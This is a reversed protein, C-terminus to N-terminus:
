DRAPKLFIPTGDPDRLSCFMVGPHPEIIPAVEVGKAILADRYAVLDDVYFSLAAQSPHTQPEGDAHLALHSGGLDFEVWFEHALEASNLGTVLSLGLTEAYFKASVGMNKVYLIAQMGQVKM